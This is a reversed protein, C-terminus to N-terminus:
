RLSRAHLTEVKGYNVVYFIDEIIAAHLHRFTETVWTFLQTQEFSNLWKISKILEKRFLYKDHKVGLLVIKQHELM